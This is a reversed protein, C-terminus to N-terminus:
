YLPGTGDRLVLYQTVRTLDGREGAIDRETPPEAGSSLVAPTAKPFDLTDALFESLEPGNPLYERQWSVQEPRGCLNAGAGLFPVAHGRLLARIVADYHEQLDM